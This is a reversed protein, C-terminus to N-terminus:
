ASFFAIFNPSMQPFVGNFSQTDLWKQIDNVTKAEWLLQHVVYEKMLEQKTTLYPWVTNENYDVAWCRYMPVCEQSRLKVEHNKEPPFQFVKIVFAVVVLIINMM